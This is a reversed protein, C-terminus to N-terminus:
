SEQLATMPSIRSASRSAQWVTAATAGGGVILAGFYVRPDFPSIQNLVAILSFSPRRMLWRLM